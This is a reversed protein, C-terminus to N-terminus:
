PAQRDRNPAPTPSTTFAAVRRLITDPPCVPASRAARSQAILRLTSVASPTRLPALGLVPSNRRLVLQRLRGRRVVRRPGFPVNQGRVSGHYDANICREATAPGRQCLSQRLLMVFRPNVNMGPFKPRAFRKATEHCHVIDLSEVDGTRASRALWSNCLENVRNKAFRKLGAIEISSNRKRRM